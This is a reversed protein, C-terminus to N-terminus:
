DALDGAFNRKARQQKLLSRRKKEELRRQKVAKPVRTKRRVAKKKLAERLLEQLREVAVRRNAKQTRYRQSVVRIIGDKNARTALRKLIRQRQVDSFSGCNAVDFFLTVRTNVKNVNQGGPGGSRSFKFVLEDERIFIDNTIEIMDNTGLGGACHVLDEPIIM